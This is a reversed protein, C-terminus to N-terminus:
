EFLQSRDEVLELIQEDQNAKQFADHKEQVKEFLEQIIKALLRKHIDGTARRYNRISEALAHSVEELERLASPVPSIIVGLAAAKEEHSRFDEVDLWGTPQNCLAEIHRAKREGFVKNKLLSSIEGQNIGTERIFQAQSGYKERILLALRKRRVAQINKPTYKM